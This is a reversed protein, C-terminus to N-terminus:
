LAVRQCHASLTRSSAFSLGFNRLLTAAKRLAWDFHFQVALRELASRHCRILDGFIVRVEFLILCFLFLIVFLLRNSGAFKVVTTCANRVGAETAATILIVKVEFPLTQLFARYVVKFNIISTELAVWNAFSAFYRCVSARTAM